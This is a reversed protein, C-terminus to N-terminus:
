EAIYVDAEPQIKHIYINYKTIVTSSTRANAAMM